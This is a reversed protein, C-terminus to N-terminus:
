FCCLVSFVFFCFSVDEGDDFSFFIFGEPAPEVVGETFM